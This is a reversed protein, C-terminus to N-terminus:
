PLHPSPQLLAMVRQCTEQPTEGETYLIHKALVQNAPHRVFTANLELVDKDVSGVERQLLERLRANLVQVCREPDPAPLPLFINSLPALARAIRAAHDPNDQVTHGAGFDIVSDPHSRLVREVAHVEFPKCYALFASTGGQDFAVRAARDEYGAENYFDWRVEDLEVRPLNLEEALLRALTSKGTCMPGIFVIPTQM